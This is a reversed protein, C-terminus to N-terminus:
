KRDLASLKHKYHRENRVMSKPDQHITVDSGPFAKRLAHIVEESVKYTQILLMEDRFELHLQIFKTKGAQRTRIDRVGLVHNKRLAIRKIRKIENEPLAKDLLSQCAVWSIYCANYLIYLSILFAFVSDSWLYGYWSLFIAVLVAANMLVDSQYHLMDARVVQSRTRYVVYYQYIMLIITVMLTALTVLIGFFPVDLSEPRFIKKISILMLFLASGAIFASEVLAALPEAKGHGYSYTQDAPKLAYRVMLFNLTSAIMDLSSDFLSTLMSVSGTVWWAVVKIVILFITILVAFFTARKVLKGYIM